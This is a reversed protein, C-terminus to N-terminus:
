IDLIQTKSIKLKLTKAPNEPLAPKPILGILESELISTGLKKALANVKKFVTLPPIIRYDTLNMSVQAINKSKLYLGLAKVCKLGNNSERIKKAIKKAIKINSTKLNINFAILINRVGIACAGATKIKKPGFDPPFIKIKEKLEEYPYQRIYALNKRELILASKEYLYVPIKLEEGVKKAFQKVPVKLEEATINKLPVFPIVDTAGIRPHIGKHKDLNILKKATKAANYAASIVAKPEGFFTIVSRNHDPDMHVDVIKVGKQALIAKEIKKIVNKDKGESFNPICEILKKM